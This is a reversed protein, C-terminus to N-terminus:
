KLKKNLKVKNKLFTYCDEYNSDIFSDKKLLLVQGGKITIIIWQKNQKVSKVHILDLKKSYDWILSNDQTNITINTIYNINKGELSKLKKNIISNKNIYTIITIVISLIIYILAYKTKSTIYIIIMLIVFLINIISSLNTKNNLVINLHDKVVNINHEYENIYKM